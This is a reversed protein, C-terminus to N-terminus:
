PGTKWSCSLPLDHDVVRGETPQYLKCSSLYLTAIMCHMLKKDHVAADKGPDEQHKRLISLCMPVYSCHDFMLSRRFLTHKFIFKGWNRHLM